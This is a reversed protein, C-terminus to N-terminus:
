CSDNDRRKNRFYSATVQERATEIEDEYRYCAGDRIGLIYHITSRVATDFAERGVEDLDDVYRQVGKLELQYM